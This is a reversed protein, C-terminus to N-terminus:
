CVVACTSASTAADLRVGRVDSVGQLPVYRGHYVVENMAPQFFLTLYVGTLILIIFSYLRDRRAHLVLPGPLDQAHQSPWPTSGWGATPGTPSGSAPPHRDGGLARRTRTTTSM